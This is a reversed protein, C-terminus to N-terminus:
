FTLALWTSAAKAPGTEQHLQQRNWWDKLSRTVFNWLLTRSLKKLFTIASVVCVCASITALFRTLLRRGSCSERNGGCIGGCTNM